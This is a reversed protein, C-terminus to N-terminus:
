PENGPMTYGKIAEQLRMGKPQKDPLTM